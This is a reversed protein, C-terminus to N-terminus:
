YNIVGDLLVTMGQNAPASVDIVAYFTGFGTAGAFRGTGGVIELPGSGVGTSPNLFGTYNFTVKDGNAATITVTGTGPFLGNATPAGLSLTGVQASRGMHRMQSTGTFNATGGVASFVNDWKAVVRGGFPRPSQASASLAGVANIVLMALGCLAARRVM